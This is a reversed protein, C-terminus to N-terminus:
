SPVFKVPEVFMVRSMGYRCFAPPAILMALSPTEPDNAMSAFLNLKLGSVTDPADTWPTTEVSPVTASDPEAVTAPPTGPRVPVAVAANSPSFTTAEPPKPNADGM